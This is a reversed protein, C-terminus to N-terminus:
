RRPKTPRETSTRLLRAGVPRGAFARDEPSNRSFFSQSPSERGTNPTKGLRSHFCESSHGRSVVFSSENPPSSCSSSAARCHQSGAPADRARCDPSAAAFSVSAGTRTCTAPRRGRGRGHVGRGHSVGSSNHCGNFGALRSGPGSSRRAPPPLHLRRAHIRSSSRQPCCTSWFSALHFPRCLDM